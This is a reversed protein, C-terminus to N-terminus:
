LKKLFIQYADEISYGKEKIKVYGLQRDRQRQAMCNEAWKEIDGLSLFTVNETLDSEKPVGDSVICRLGAAQAEILSFPMGEHLSPMLFIDMASVYEDVNEQNGVLFVRDSLRNQAIQRELDEREEGDGVLVCVYEKPLLTMLSVLFSYNKVATLRGVSGLLIQENLGLRERIKRRKEEDFRYKDAFIGNTLVTCDNRLEALRYFYDASAESCALPIDILREYRKANFFELLQFAAKKLGTEESNTGHSHQIVKAKGVKKATKPFLIDVKSTNNIWVYDYRDNTFISKLLKRYKGVKWIPPCLFYEYKERELIDIYESQEPVLFTFQIKEANGQLKNCKAINLLLTGVGGKDKSLGTVLIRM